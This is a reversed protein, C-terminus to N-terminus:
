KLFDDGGFRSQGSAPPAKAGKPDTAAGAVPSTGEAQALLRSLRPFTTEQGVYVLLLCAGFLIILAFGKKVALLWAGSRPLRGLLGAFTGCLLILAGQGLGFLFLKLGGDAVAWLHSLGETESVSAVVGALVVGLIPGTCSGVLLGSAMGTVFAGAVGQRRSGPRGLLGQLFAPTAFTFVEMLFLSMAIFFLAVLFLVWGNGILTQFPKGAAVFAMGVVAYVLAMGIVLALSLVFARARSGASTTGIYGVTLPLVPYTCPTISALLGGLFVLVYVWITGSTMAESLQSQIWGAV